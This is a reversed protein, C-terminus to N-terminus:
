TKKTKRCPRRRPKSRPKSRPKRTSRLGGRGSTIKPPIRSPVILARPDAIKQMAKYEARGNEVEDVEDNDDERADEEEEEEEEEEGDKSCDDDGDDEEEEEKLEDEEEGSDEDEDVSEFESGIHELTFDNGIEKLQLGTDSEEIYDNSRLHVLATSLVFAVVALLILTKM